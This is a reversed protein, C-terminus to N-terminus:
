CEDDVLEHVDFHKSIEERNVNRETVVYGLGALARTLNSRYLSNGRSFVRDLLIAILFYSVVVTLFMTPFASVIGISYTRNLCSDFDDCDIGQSISEGVTIGFILALILAVIVGVSVGSHGSHSVVVVNTSECGRFQQSHTLLIGGGDIWNRVDEKQKEKVSKSCNHYKPVNRTDFIEVGGDYLFLNGKEKQQKRLSDMIKRSSINSSLLIVTKRPFNGSGDLDIRLKQCCKVIGKSLLEYDTRKFYQKASNITFRFTYILSDKPSSNSAIKKRCLVCIPKTGPITHSEGPSIVKEESTKIDGGNVSIYERVNEPNAASSIAQLLSLM